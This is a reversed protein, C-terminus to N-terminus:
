PRPQHPALALFAQWSEPTNLNLVVQPDAVELRRARAAKLQHDLRSDSHDPNLTRLNAALVASLLVPHGGRGQYTPSVGEVGPQLAAFLSALVPAVPCDLPGLFVPGALDQLGVQLSSFSGRDPDPNIAIQADKIGRILKGEPEQYPGLVVRILGETQGRIAEVQALLWPKGQFDLLGKPSGMRESRGAALLIFPLKM